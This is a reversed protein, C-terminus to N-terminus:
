VAVGELVELLGEVEEEILQVDSGVQGLQLEDTLRGLEDASPGGAQGGAANGSDALLLAELCRVDAGVAGDKVLVRVELTTAGRGQTLDKIPGGLGILVVLVRDLDQGGLVSRTYTCRQNGCQGQLTDLLSVQGTDQVRLVKDLSAGM